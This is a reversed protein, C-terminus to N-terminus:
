GILVTWQVPEKGNLQVLAVFSIYCDTAVQTAKEKEELVIVNPIM